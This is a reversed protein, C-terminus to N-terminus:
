QLAERTRKRTTRAQGEMKAVKAMAEALAKKSEALEQKLGEIYDSETVLHCLKSKTTRSLIPIDEKSPTSTFTRISTDPSTIVTILKLVDLNPMGNTDLIPLPNLVLGNVLPKDDDGKFPFMVFQVHARDMVAVTPHSGESVAISSYYGIVQLLVHYCVSTFTLGIGQLIVNLAYLLLALRLM